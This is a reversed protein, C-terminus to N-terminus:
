EEADTEEDQEWHANAAERDEIERLIRKLEQVRAVGEPDAAAEEPSVLPTPSKGSAGGADEWANSFAAFSLDELFQDHSAGIFEEREGETLQAWVADFVTRDDIEDAPVGRRAYDALVQDALDDVKRQLEEPIEHPVNM